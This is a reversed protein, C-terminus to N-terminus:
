LTIVSRRLPKMEEMENKVDRIEFLLKDVLDSSYLEAASMLLNGAEGFKNKEYKDLALRVLKYSEFVNESSVDNRGDRKYEKNNM